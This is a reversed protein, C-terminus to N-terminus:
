FNRLNEENKGACLEVRAARSKEATVASEVSDVCIEVVVKMSSSPPLKVVPSGELMVSQHGVSQSPPPSQPPPSQPQSQPPIQASTTMPAAPATTNQAGRPSKSVNNNTSENQKLQLGLVSMSIELENPPTEPFVLKSIEETEGYDLLVGHRFQHM